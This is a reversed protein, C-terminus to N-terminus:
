NEIEFVCSPVMCQRKFGLLTEYHGSKVINQVTSKGGAIGFQAAADAYKLGDIKVANYVAQKTEFTYSKKKRTARKQRYHLPILSHRFIM